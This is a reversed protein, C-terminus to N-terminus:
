IEIIGLVAAVAALEARSRVSLRRKAKEIFEHATTRAVGLEHAIQADSMGKAALRISALERETLSAPPVAFGNRATLTRTHEHLCISILTLFAREEPDRCDRHGVMSVLGVRAGGLPLPIALGETWGAAAAMDLAQRGVKPFKRDARLESWTYPARRVALEDVLPDREILGSGLYFRKWADPWDIIYFTSRQRNSLDVVGCAFTDFGFPEITARFLRGCEIPTDLRRLATNFGIAQVESM